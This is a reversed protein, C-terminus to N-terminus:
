KAPMERIKLIRTSTIYQTTMQTPIELPYSQVFVESGDEKVDWVEVLLRYESTDANEIRVAKTM